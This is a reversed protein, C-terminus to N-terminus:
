ITNFLLYFLYLSSNFPSSLASNSVFLYYFITLSCFSPVFFLLPLSFIFFIFHFSSLCFLLFFYSAFVSYPPTNFLTDLIYFFHCTLKSFKCLDNELSCVRVCITWRAFYAAFHNFILLLNTIFAERHQCSLQFNPLSGAM